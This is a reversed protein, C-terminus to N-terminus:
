KKSFLFEILAKKTELDLHKQTSILNKIKGAGEEPLSFDSPLQLHQLAEQLQAGTEKPIEPQIAMLIPLAELVLQNRSEESLPEKQAKEILPMLANINGAELALRLPDVEFANLVDFVNVSDKEGPIYGAEVGKNIMNQLHGYAEPMNKKLQETALKQGANTYGVFYTGGGALLLLPLAVFLLTKKLLSQGSKKKSKEGFTQVHQLQKKVVPSQAGKFFLPSHMVPSSIPRM